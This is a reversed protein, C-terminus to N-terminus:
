PSCNAIRHLAEDFVYDPPPPQIFPLESILHAFSKRSTRANMAILSVRSQFHNRDLDKARELLEQAEDVRRLLWLLQALEFFIDPKKTDCELARRYLNEATKFDRVAWARRAENCFKATTVQVAEGPHLPAPYLPGRYKLMPYHALDLTPGWGDKHFLNRRTLHLREVTSMFAQELRAGLKEALM